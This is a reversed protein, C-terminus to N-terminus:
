KLYEGEGPRGMLVRSPIGKDHRADLHLVAGLCFDGREASDVYLVLDGLRADVAVAEQHPTEVLLHDLALNYADYRYRLSVTFWSIFMANEARRKEVEELALGRLGRSAVSRQRDIELVRCISRFTPPGLDADARAHDAVSRYRAHSSQYRAQRLWRHYRDPEFRGSGQRALRTRQLEVATDMFWDDAHPAVLFRWVRDHMEREEDTLNFASVPEGSIGARAKGVAPMIDDHIVSPAARGFDGLPRACASAAGCLVIVAAAGLVRRLQDSVSANRDYTQSPSAQCRRAM